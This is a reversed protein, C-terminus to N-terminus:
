SRIIRTSEAFKLTGILNKKSVKSEKYSVSATEVFTKACGRGPGITRSQADAATRALDTPTGEDRTLALYDNMRRRLNLGREIELRNDEFKELERTKYETLLKLLMKAEEDVRKKVEDSRRVIDREIREANDTLKKRELQLLELQKRDFEMVARNCDIEKLLQRRFSDALEVLNSYQHGNHDAIFCHTCAVIRCQKCFVNLQEAAHIDCYGVILREVGAPDLRGDPIDELNHGGMGSTRHLTICQDCLAARCVTCYVSATRANRASCRQFECTLPVDDSSAAYSLLKQREVRAEMLYNKRLATIGGPPIAITECCAPCTLDNKNRLTTTLSDAVDVNSRKGSVDRLCELCFTHICPLIRPDVFTQKCYGCQTSKYHSLTLSIPM